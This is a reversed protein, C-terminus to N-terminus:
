SKLIFLYFGFYQKTSILSGLLLLQIFNGKNVFRRIMSTLWIFQSFLYSQTPGCEIGLYFNEVLNIEITDFGM